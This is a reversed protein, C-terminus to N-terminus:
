HFIFGLLLCMVYQLAPDPPVGVASERKATGHGESLFARRFGGRCCTGVTVALVFFRREIVIVYKKKYKQYLYCFCPVLLVMYFKLCVEVSFPSSQFKLFKLLSLNYGPIVFATNKANEYATIEADIGVTIKADITCHQTFL